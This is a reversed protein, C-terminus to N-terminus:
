DWIYDLREVYDEGYKESGWLRLSMRAWLTIKRPFKYLLILFIKFLFEYKLTITIFSIDVTGFHKCIEEM